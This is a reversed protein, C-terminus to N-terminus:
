IGETSVTAPQIWGDPISEDISFGYNLWLMEVNKGPFKSRMHEVITVITSFNAKPWPIKGEILDFDPYVRRYMNILATDPGLGEAENIEQLMESVKRM